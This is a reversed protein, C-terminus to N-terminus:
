VFFKMTNDFNQKEWWTSHGFDAKRIMRVKSISLPDLNKPGALGLPKDWGLGFLSRGALTDEIRMAQDKGAIYVCCKGLAGSRLGSNIGNRELNSDCAGSVLHLAEVHIMWRLMQLADLAVTCGNSHAVIVNRIGGFQGLANAFARARQRRQIWSTLATTWYEDALGKVPSDPFHRALWICAKKNWNRPSGPWTQIGNICWVILPQRDM